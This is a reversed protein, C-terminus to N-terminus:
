LLLKNKEIKDRLGKQFALYEDSGWTSWSKVLDETYPKYDGKKHGNATSKYILKDKNVYPIFSEGWQSEIIYSDVPVHFFDSKKDMQEKWDGILWMYKITMNIWKQAQGYSMKDELVSYKCGDIEVKINSADCVKKCLEHHWLDFSEKTKTENLMKLVADRIDESIKDSFIKHVQDSIREREAKTKAKEAYEKNFTLTRNLDLYARQACKLAKINMNDEEVIGFYAYLFFQEAFTNLAM